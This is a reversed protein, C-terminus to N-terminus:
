FQRGEYLRFGRGLEDLKTRRRSGRENRTCVHRYPRMDVGCALLTYTRDKKQGNSEGRM